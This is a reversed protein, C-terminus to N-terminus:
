SPGRASVGSLSAPKRNQLLPRSMGTDRVDLCLPLEQMAVDAPGFGGFCGPRRSAAREPAKTSSATEHLTRRRHLSPHRRNPFRSGISTTFQCLFAALSLGSRNRSSSPLEAPDELELLGLRPNPSPPQPDARIRSTLRIISLSRATRLRDPSESPGRPCCRAPQRPRSSREGEDGGKPEVPWRQSRRQWHHNGSPLTPNEGRVVL